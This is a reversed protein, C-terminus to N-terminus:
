PRRLHIRCFPAGRPGFPGPADITFGLRAAWRLAQVYRVDVAQELEGFRRVWLDVVERSARFFLVPHRDVLDGTLLWPIAVPSLLSRRAVGFLAAVEGDILGAWAEGGHTASWRVSDRLAGLPDSGSSAFVEARDGARMRAALARAHEETAPVIQVRDAEV